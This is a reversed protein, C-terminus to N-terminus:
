RPPRETSTDGTRTLRWVEFRGYSPDDLTATLRAERTSLLDRFAEAVGHFPDAPANAEELFRRMAPDILVTDWPPIAAAAEAITLPTPTCAANALAFPVGLSEYVAVHGRLALWWPSLALLRSERPIRERLRAALVPYPTAERVAGALRGYALLGELLPLTLVLLATWRVFRSNGPDFLAVLPVSAVLAALPWLPALYSFNKPSLVLTFLTVTLLFAALLIRSAAQARARVRRGLLVLGSLIVALLVWPAIQGAQGARLVPEYRRWEGAVNAAYFRFSFLDFRDSYMRNQSVFDSFGSVVFAVWPALAYLFGGSVLFVAAFLRPPRRILLIAGAVALWAAGYAHTLTALGALFGAAFLRGRPPRRDADLASLLVLLSLLGFVPVAVDYRAIRGLDALPIGTPRHGGPIAVPWAALIVAAALGHAPSLLRRGALYTLGLSATAFSLAVIRAEFLGPGLVKLALGVILPFLPLFGYEHREAGFFGGSLDTAFHGTTWFTFGPAAIWPEDEHIRPVADLGFLGLTAFAVVIAVAAVDGTRRSV